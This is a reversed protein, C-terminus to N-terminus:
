MELIIKMNRDKNVRVVENGSSILQEVALSNYLRSLKPNLHSSWEYGEAVSVTIHVRLTKSHGLCSWKALEALTDPTIGRSM